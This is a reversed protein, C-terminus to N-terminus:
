LRDMMLWATPVLVLVTGLLTLLGPTQGFVLADGGLAFVVQSLGIVSVRAPAGSTFARTLCLQGLTAAAGVGLLLLVTRGDPPFETGVTRKFLLLCVLSFALSVLSFHVVIARVDIGRLRHLNIMALATFLSGALAVLTAWNGEALHPRQILAVGVVGSIISLWVRAPPTEGLLPWSLLAVWLPFLNTLTFVDPVPLRTLAFFTGVLSISGALSRLWLTPPGWFVLRVGAARAWAAVCVLPVLSRAVAILQWDCSHRLGHALTGMVAFALSGFLM